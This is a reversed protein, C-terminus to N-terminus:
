YQSFEVNCRADIGMCLLHKTRFRSNWSLKLSSHVVTRCLPLRVRRSDVKKENCSNSLVLPSVNYIAIKFEDLSM